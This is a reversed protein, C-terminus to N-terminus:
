RFPGKPEIEDQPPVWSGGDLDAYRIPPGPPSDTLIEMKSLKDSIITAGQVRARLQEAPRRDTLGKLLSRPWNRIAAQIRYILEDENVQRV